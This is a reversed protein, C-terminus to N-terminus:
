HEARGSAPGVAVAALGDFGIADIRRKLALEEWDFECVAGPTRFRPALIATTTGAIFRIQSIATAGMDNRNLRLLHAPPDLAFVDVTGVLIYSEPVGPDTVIACGGGPTIGIEGQDTVLSSQFVTAQTELDVVMFLAHRSAAQALVLARRGDPHLVVRGVYAVTDGDITRPKFEHLVTRSRVDYVRLATPPGTAGAIVNGEPDGTAYLVQMSDAGIVDLSAPDLYVLDWCERVVLRGKDLLLLSGTYGHSGEPSQRITKTAVDIAITRAGYEEPVQIEAIITRGDPTVVMSWVFYGVEISDVVVFSDADVVFILGTDGSTAAYINYKVPGPEIGRRSTCAVALCVAVLGMCAMTRLVIRWSRDM